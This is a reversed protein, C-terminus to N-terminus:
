FAKCNIRRVPQLKSATVPTGITGDSPIPTFVSLGAFTGALSKPGLAMNFDHAWMGPSASGPGMGFDNGTLGVKLRVGGPQGNSPRALIATGALENTYSLAPASGNVGKEVGNVAWLRPSSSEDDKQFHLKLTTTTAGVQPTPAAFAFCVTAHDKELVPAVNSASAAGAGILAVAAVGVTAKKLTNGNM